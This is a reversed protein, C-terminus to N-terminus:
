LINLVYWGVTARVNEISKEPAAKDRVTQWDYACLFRLVVMQRVNDKKIRELDGLYGKIEKITQEIEDRVFSLRVAKDETMSSVKNTLSYPMGDLVKIPPAIDACGLEYMQVLGELKRRALILSDYTERVM